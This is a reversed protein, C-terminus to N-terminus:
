KPQKHKDKINQAREATLLGKAVANDSASVPLRGEDILAEIRSAIYENM